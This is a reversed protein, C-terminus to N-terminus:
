ENDTELVDLLEGLADTYGLNYVDAHEYRRGVLAADVKPTDMDLRRIRIEALVEPLTWTRKSM